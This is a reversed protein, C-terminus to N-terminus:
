GARGSLIATRGADEAAGDDLVVSGLGWLRVLYGTRVVVDEEGEAEGCM